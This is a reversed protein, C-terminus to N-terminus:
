FILHSGIVHSDVSIFTRVATVALVFYLDMIVIEAIASRFDMELANAVNELEEGGSIELISATGVHLMM